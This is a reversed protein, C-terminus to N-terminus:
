RVNPANHCTQSHLQNPSWELPAGGIGGQSAVTDARAISTSWHCIPTFRWASCCHYDVPQDLKSSTIYETSSNANQQQGNFRTSGSTLHKYKNQIQLSFTHSSNDESMNRCFVCRLIPWNLQHNSTSITCYPTEINRLSPFQWKIHNICQM